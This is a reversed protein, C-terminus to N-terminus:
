GNDGRETGKSGEHSWAFVLLEIQLQDISWHQDEFSLVAVDAVV